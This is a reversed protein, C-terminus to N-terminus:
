PLALALPLVVKATAGGTENNELHVRAQSGYRTELRARINALGTGGGSGSRFGRGNDAVTVTLQMGRRTASVRVAGGRLSPNLGHKIANEVLTLLIMSPIPHDALSQPVDVSFDLREGMRIRQIDLYARVLDAEQQLTTDPERLKTLAVQLYRTVSELMLRGGVRDQQYLRRVNALTNFLFHPEVRAQLVQLQAEIMDGEALAEDREAQRADALKAMERRHLEFAVTLLGALLAYRPWLYGLSWVFTLPSRNSVLVELEMRLLVCVGSSVVAVGALIAIRRWGRQSVLNEAVVIALLIAIGMMCLLPYRVLLYRMRNTPDVAPSWLNDVCRVLTLLAVLAILEPTLGALARQRSTTPGARSATWRRPSQPTTRM